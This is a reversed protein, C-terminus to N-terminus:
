FNWLSWIWRCLEWIPRGIAAFVVGGALFAALASVATLVGRWAGLTIRNLILLARTFRARAPAQGEPTPM